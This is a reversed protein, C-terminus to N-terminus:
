RPLSKEAASTRSRWARAGRRPMKRKTKGSTSQRPSQLRDLFEKLAAANNHETDHAGYVLTISRRNKRSLKKLEPLKPRLEQRYRRKFEDWKAPDHNFWKRLEDSPALDKRWEDIHAKEKSVGRPWLRDILIREGDRPEALDYVRKIRIM